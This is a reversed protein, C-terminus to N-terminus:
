PFILPASAGSFPLKQDLLQKPEVAQQHNHISPHKFRYVTPLPPVVMFRKLPRSQRDRASTSPRSARVSREDVHVIENPLGPRTGLVPIGVGNLFRAGANVTLQDNVLELQLKKPPNPDFPPDLTIGAPPFAPETTEPPLPPEPTATFPPTPELTPAAPTPPFIVPTTGGTPTPPGRSTIFPAVPNGFNPLLPNPTIL